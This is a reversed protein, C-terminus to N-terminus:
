ICQAGLWGIQRRRCQHDGAVHVCRLYLGDCPEDSVLVRGDGVAEEGEVRVVLHGVEGVGGQALRDLAVVCRPPVQLPDM